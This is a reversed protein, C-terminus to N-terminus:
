KKCKKAHLPCEKLQTRVNGSPMFAKIELEMEYGCPFTHREKVYVM